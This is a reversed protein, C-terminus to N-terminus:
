DLLMLSKSFDRAQPFYVYHKAIPDDVNRGLKMNTTEYMPHPPPPRPLSRHRAVLDATEFSSTMAVAEPEVGAAAADEALSGSGARASVAAGFRTVAVPAAAAAAATSNRVNDYQVRAMESKQQAWRAEKNDMEAAYQKVLAQSTFPVDLTAM